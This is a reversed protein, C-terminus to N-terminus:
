LSIKDVHLSEARSLRIVQIYIFKDFQLLPIYRDIIYISRNFSPCTFIIQGLHGIVKIVNLYLCM